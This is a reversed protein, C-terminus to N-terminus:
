RRCQYDRCIQPRTSYICCQNNRYFMCPGGKYHKRLAWPMGKEIMFAKTKANGVHQIGIAYDWLRPERNMDDITLTVGKHCCQGCRKCQWDPM